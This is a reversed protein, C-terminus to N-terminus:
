KQVAAVKKAEALRLYAAHDYIANEMRLDWSKQLIEFAEQYKGQKYLGWGKSDLFNHNEPSLELAKGVLELGENLNRDTDILFWALNNILKPTKSELSLAERFYKEAQDPLGAEWYINALNTTIETEPVSNEKSLSKYNELYANASKTKGESLALVAQRYILETNGPFDKEAKNYLMREKRYQGTKYYFKGLQTYSSVWRPRLGWKNYIDLEKKCLSIAQDYQQLTGYRGALNSNPVPMQDDYDVILKWYKICEYITEFLGSYQANAYLKELASMQDRKSYLRICWEKAEEFINRNSYSYTLMRIAETFNTDIDIAKLYWNAATSYDLIYFAQNGYLYYKYAEAYETSILNRFDTVIEKEMVTMILFDKVLGSLSDIMQFIEEESTGEIQFSKFTEESKSDVLQANVRITSGAQNISGSIFLNADLNRSINGAVSPTISAYSTLDRSQLMGTVSEPQKVTLDESFNSLYTIINDKIGDQWVNWITDNTMNRFPMVAVSITGKSRLYELRDREFIKPYVFIAAAILLAVITVGYIWKYKSFKSSKVQTIVKGGAEQEFPVEKRTKENFLDAPESKKMGQIIERISNAVKNIQNRYKTRKINIKEDDDTKLPRNVGPEEYIFEVGRMVGGLVSECLKIDENDLDYIRVPLVRSAVNSNPLKVKLGFQDKSAQEVFAKFEHEWAFSKPDCYTRSIIPIFVLCKLKEKLSEDVDHTELLGDHPNVDFYVSIEEKFTSELETKLAEVFESVWGDGKNDKQRYSIFIDYEYGPILSPM